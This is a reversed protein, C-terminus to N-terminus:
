CERIPSGAYPLNVVLFCRVNESSRRWIPRVGSVDIVLALMGDYSRVLPRESGSCATVSGDLWKHAVLVSESRMGDLSAGFCQFSLAVHEIQFEREGASVIEKQFRVAPLSLVWM